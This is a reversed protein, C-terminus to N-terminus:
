GGAAGAVGPGEGRPSPGRTKHAQLFFLLFSNTYSYSIRFRASCPRSGLRDFQLPGALAM